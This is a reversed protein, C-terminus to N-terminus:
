AGDYRKVNHVPTGLDALNTGYAKRLCHVSLRDSTVIGANKCHVRFNRNVNNMMTSNKWKDDKGEEKWQAWKQRIIDLRDDTIFVYPNKSNSEDKLERLLDIVISPCDVSRDQHNKIRFPPFGSKEKRSKIHIQRNIFDINKDWRLHM